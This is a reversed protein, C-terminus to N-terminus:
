TLLDAESQWGGVNSKGASPMARERELILDRLEANLDDVNKLVHSFLPTPFLNEIRANKAMDAVANLTRESM